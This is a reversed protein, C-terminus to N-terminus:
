CKRITKEALIFDIEDDIDLSRSQPMIFPITEEIIFSKKITPNSTTSFYLVGNMALATPLDQRCSIRDHDCFPLLKKVRAKTFGFPTYQLKAFHSQLHLM